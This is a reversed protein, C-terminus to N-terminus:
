MRRFIYRMERHIYFCYYVGERVLLFTIFINFHMLYNYNVIVQVYAYLHNVLKSEIHMSGLHLQDNNDREYHLTFM